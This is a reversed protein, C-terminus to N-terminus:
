IRQRGTGASSMRSVSSSFSRLIAAEGSPWFFRTAETPDMGVGSQDAGPKSYAQTRCSGAGAALRQCVCTHSAGAADM